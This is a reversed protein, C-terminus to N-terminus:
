YTRYKLISGAKMTVTTGSTESALQVRINGSPTAGAQAIGKITAPWSQTTNPLGGVPILLAANPNGAAGIGVGTAAQFENIKAVGDTMGTPWALGARPNVTATNTRLMLIAEFEYNTSAAPAFGLGTVDVATNSTTTFDSALKITTWPDAGGAPAAQMMDSRFFTSTSGTGKPMLGHATTSADLTTVDTPAALEDLKVTDAGGSKHSAAHALPTRSDSLRSDNGATAQQAGTGLTRLSGTAAVADVAMVDAGGPQHASAHATPSRADSLRSDNGECATNVATGYSQQSGTLKSSADLGPYGNAANRQAAQSYTTNSTCTWTAGDTTFAKGTDLEFFSDGNRPVPKTDTSLGNHVITGDTCVTISIM